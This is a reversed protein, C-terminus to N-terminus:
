DDGLGSESAGFEDPRAIKISWEGPGVRDVQFCPTELLRLGDADPDAIGDVVLDSKPITIGASTEDLKRLTLLATVNATNM